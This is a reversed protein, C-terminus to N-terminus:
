LSELFCFVDLLFIRMTASHLTQFHFEQNNDCTWCKETAAVNPMSNGHCHKEQGMTKKPVLMEPM